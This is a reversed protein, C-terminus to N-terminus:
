GALMLVQRGRGIRKEHGAGDGSSQPGWCQRHPGDCAGQGAGQAGRRLPAAPEAKRLVDDQGGAASGSFAEERETDGRGRKGQRRSCASLGAAGSPSLLFFFFSRFPAGKGAM